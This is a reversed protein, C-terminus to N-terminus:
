VSPVLASKVAVAVHDELLVEVAVILADVPSKVLTAFPRVVTVAVM